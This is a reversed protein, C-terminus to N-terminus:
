VQVSFGGLWNVFCFRSFILTLDLGLKYRAQGLEAGAQKVNEFTSKESPISIFLPAFLRLIIKSFRLIMNLMELWFITQIKLKQDKTM